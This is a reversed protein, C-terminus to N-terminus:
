ENMENMYENFGEGKSGCNPDQRDVQKCIGAMWAVVDIVAQRFFSMKFTLVMFSTTLRGGAEM